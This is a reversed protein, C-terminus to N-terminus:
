SRADARGLLELLDPDAARLTACWVPLASARPGRRGRLRTVFGTHRCSMLGTTSSPVTPGGTAPRERVGWDPTSQPAAFGNGALLVTDALFGALEALNAPGGYALYRHAQAAIGAPVSSLAMLAADPAQEGGLVVLPRPQNRLRDLGERWAQEGGLLRVVVLDVGEVLAPIDELPLRAPNALRYGAHSARAALLDTDSTSLLLHQCPPRAGRCGGRPGAGPRRDRRGSDRAGPDTARGPIGARTPRSRRSPDAGRSLPPVAGIEGAKRWQGDHDSRVRTWAPGTTM